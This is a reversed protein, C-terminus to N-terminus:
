RNLEKRDSTLDWSTISSGVGVISVGVSIGVAGRLLSVPTPTHRETNTGDGLQGVENYGWCRVSTDGLTMCTSRYGASIERACHNDIFGDCDNDLGDCVEESLAAAECNQYEVSWGAAGECIRYEIGPRRCGAVSIYCRRSPLTLDNDNTGDCDNDLGDCIEEERSVAEYDCRVVAREEDCRYAGERYCEGLQGSDCPLGLNSFGNYPDGDCDHDVDDCREQALTHIDPNGDDCDAPLSAYGEPMDCSETPSKDRADGFGDGDQDRYWLGKECSEEESEAEAEGERADAAEAEGEEGEGETAASSSDGGGGCAALFMMLSAPITLTRM